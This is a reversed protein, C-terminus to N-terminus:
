MKWVIEEERNTNKYQKIKWDLDKVSYGYHKLTIDMVRDTGWACRQYYFELDPRIIVIPTHNTPRDRQEGGVMEVVHCMGMNDIGTDESRFLEFLKQTDGEDYLEDADCIFIFKYDKLYKIATNLGEHELMPQLKLLEVNPQNLNKVIEETDDTTESYGKFKQNVVLVKDIWNFQKIVQELYDTLHYSRVIAALM